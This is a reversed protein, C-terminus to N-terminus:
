GKSRKEDALTGKDVWASTCGKLTIKVGDVEATTEHKELMEAFAKKMKKMDLENDKHSLKM